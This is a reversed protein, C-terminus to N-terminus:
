FLIVVGPEIIQIKGSEETEARLERERARQLLLESRREIESSAMDKGVNSRIRECM